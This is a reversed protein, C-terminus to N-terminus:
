GINPTSAAMTNVALTMANKAGRSRLSRGAIIGSPPWPLGGPRAYTGIM